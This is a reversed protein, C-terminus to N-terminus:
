IIELRHHTVKSITEREVFLSFILKFDNDYNISDRFRLLEIVRHLLYLGTLQLFFYRLIDIVDNLSQFISWRSEDSQKCSVIKAFLNHFNTSNSM